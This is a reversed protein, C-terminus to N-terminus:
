PKGAMSDRWKLDIRVFIAAIVASAAALAAWGAAPRWAVCAVACGACGVILAGYVRITGRHGAGLKVLRQYYHTRHAEWVREGALGRRVLTVSADALFPLFVLLPFWAPWIGAVVGAIGGAGAAFGLPVSGADGLFLRAPPLNRALFPLCALALAFWPAWAAGALACAAAFAAFGCVAMTGSLGDSGDMFNFFNTAAVLAVTGAAVFAASHPDFGALAFSLALAAIAQVLIRWLPSVGRFDDALSVVFLVALATLLIAYSAGTFGPPPGALPLAAAWGAFIAWGGARPVPAQHLSRENPRDIPAVEPFRALVAVVFASVALATLLAGLRDGM